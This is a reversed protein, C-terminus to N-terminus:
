PTSGSRGRATNLWERAAAHRPNARLAAEWAQTAEGPRSEQWYIAGRLYDIEAQESPEVGERAAIEAAKDAAREAEAYRRTDYYLVALCRYATVDEVRTAQKLLREADAWRQQDIRVQGLNVYARYDDTRTIAYSWLSESSRWVANYQVTRYSFGVLPIAALLAAVATRYPPAARSSLAVIGAALIWCFGLSPAYLYRDAMYTVLPFLVAPALMTIMWGAGLALTRQKRWYAALLVAPLLLLGALNILPPLPGAGFQPVDYDPAGARFGTLLWLYNWIAHGKVMLYRLPDHAYPAKATVQALSNLRSLVGGAILYPVKTWLALSWAPRKRGEAKVFDWLLLFLPLVVISVKALLGLTFLVVSGAYPAWRIRSSATARIYFHLSLLLFTTSFLDKRISIWAVAEVHSPHVAFLLAALFAVPFSGLMRQVVLLALVANLANLLIAHLHFGFPKMGWLSYDVMYSVLHLPLFNRAYPQTFVHVLNEHTFGRIWPNNVVLTPDDWNLFANHLTSLNVLLAAAFVTAYGLIKLGAPVRPGAALRSGAPAAPPQGARQRKGRKPSM